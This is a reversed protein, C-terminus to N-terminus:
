NMPQPDTLLHFAELSLQRYPYWLTYDPLSPTIHSCIYRKLSYLIMNGYFPIYNAAHCVCLILPHPTTAHHTLHRKPRGCEM